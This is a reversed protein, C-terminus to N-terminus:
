LFNRLMKWFSTSSLDFTQGLANKIRPSLLSLRYFCTSFSEVLNDKYCESTKEDDHLLNPDNYMLAHYRVSALRLDPTIKKIKQKKAKKARPSFFLAQYM